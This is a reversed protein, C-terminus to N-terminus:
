VTRHGVRKRPGGVQVVVGQLVPVKPPVEGVGAPVVQETVVDYM